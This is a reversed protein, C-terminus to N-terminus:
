ESTESPAIQVIRSDGCPQSQTTVAGCEGSRHMRRYEGPTIGRLERFIRSLHAQDSFGCEEAVVAIADDGDRLARAAAEIRLGRVYDGISCGLREHFGHTLRSPSVGASRALTELRIRRAFSHDLVEMARRLWLPHDDRGVVRAGLALLQEVLAPLITKSVADPMALECRIQEPLQRLMPFTMRASDWHGNYLPEFANALSPMMDICILRAGREGTHNAHTIGAPRLILQGPGVEESGGAAEDFMVGDFVMVLHAREHRHLPLSKEPPEDLAEVSFRDFM